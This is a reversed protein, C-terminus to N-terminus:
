NLPLALMDAFLDDFNEFVDDIGASRGGSSQGRTRTAWGDGRGKNSESDNGTRNRSFGSDNPKDSALMATDHDRDLDRDASSSPRVDDLDAELWVFSGHEGPAHLTRDDAQLPSTVAASETPTAPRPDAIGQPDANGAALALSGSALHAGSTHTAGNDYQYIRDTGADIIWVHQVDNPDITIGTPKVNAADIEWRGLFVGSMDYKFVRDVTKGDNVIWLSSGDTTIGKPKRNTSHLAFSGSAAVGGNRLAAGGAFHFVRDAERDVIWVDTGDTAIGDPKDLGGATWTGLQAGADDYVFVGSEKDIVWVLSGDANTAIGLPKSNAEQLGYTDALSGDAEYEFAGSGTFDVVFFKTGATLATVDINVTATRSDITADNTVYTFSDKGAFGANPTYTFSGDPNLSVSGNAPNAVVSVTLTDGDVDTDNVLLGAAAGVTLASDQDVSYDDDLAAPTDNVAGVDITVTAVDSYFKGDYARYTFADTGNFDANPTYTFSGYTDLRLTGNTPGSVLHATLPNIYPTNDTDIDNARVGNTSNVDLAVDELTGYADDVAIPPLNNTRSGYLVKGSSVGFNGAADIPKVTVGKHSVAGTPILSYAVSTVNAGVTWSRSRQRGSWTWHMTIEYGAIPTANDSPPDWSASAAVTDYKTASLNKVAGSFYVHMPVVVDVTGVSNSAHFTATTTTYGANVDAATPMWNATLTAPDFTLGAPGSFLTITSPDPRQDTLVIEVPQEAIVPGPTSTGGSFGNVSWRVQPLAPISAFLTGTNALGPNGAADLPTVTLTYSRGTLLGTMLVSTETAPATYDVSHTGSTRGVGWEAFGHIRYSGVLNAGEGTPAVWHATPEALSTGTVSVGTVAGTFLTSVSFTLATSGGSNTGRVTVTQTGGQEGFPTWSILGTLSDITMGTPNTVLEYTSPSSSADSIQATFLAGALAFREGTAPNLTVSLQPADSIIDFVVDLDATGVSNTARFTVTHTGVEGVTPTWQVVGTDPNVSMSAPGSVFSFTPAPNAQSLLRIEIPTKAPSQIAGTTQSGFQFALTPAALTTALIRPSRASQNGAADIAQVSFRKTTLPTLGTIISTTSTAPVTDVVTYVWRKGFRPGTYVATSVEYRDVGVADVSATWTLTVTTETAGQVAFNTPATPAITDAVVTIDFAQDVSGTRNSARVAVSHVGVQGDVPQWSIVGTASEITMGTPSVVLSYTPDPNGTANVDYTYARDLSGNTTASTTFVPSVDPVNLNQTRYVASTANGAFDFGGAVVIRGASDFAAAHSYVPTPLATQTTWANTTPDYAQVADTAGNSTVGGLVYIAGTDDMVAASDRTGIQMPAVTSWTNSAIDYRYSAGQIGSDDLTTSGGFVFIHGNGDGIASLGHLAQPLSAIASWAGNVPDYREAQSWIEGDDFVGIGGIAYARGSADAAFGLDYRITNMKALDQSDGFRYDYSLAEDSGEDNGTGGFLLVASGSRVAGLDNRQTDINQGAIWSTGNAALHPAATPLAADGGLLRVTDDPTVVAVADTRPAPLDPGASWAFTTLLCRSELQEVQLLQSRGAGNRKKADVTHNSRRFTSFITNIPM